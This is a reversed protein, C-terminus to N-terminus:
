VTPSNGERLKQIMFLAKYFRNDNSTEYRSYLDMRQVADATLETKYGSVYENRIVIKDVPLNERNSYETVERLKLPDLTGKILEVEAKNIRKRKIYSMTVIETLAIETMGKPKIDAEFEKYIAEYDAKEYDSVSESLIGHTLANFKTKETGSLTQTEM